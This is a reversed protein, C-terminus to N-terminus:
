PDITPPPPSTPRLVFSPSGGLNLVAWPVISGTLCPCANSTAAPTAVTASATAAQEAGASDGSVCAAGGAEAAVAAEGATSVVITGVVAVVLVVSAGGGVTAGLPTTTCIAIEPKAKLGGSIETSGPVVMTQVLWSAVDWVAVSASPDKRVPVIASSADDSTTMPPGPTKSYKQPMWGSIRPVIM